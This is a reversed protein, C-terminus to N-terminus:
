PASGSSSYIIGDGGRSNEINGSGFGNNSAKTSQISSVASKRWKAIGEDIRKIYEFVFTHDKVKIIKLETGVRLLIKLKGFMHLFSDIFYIRRERDRFADQLLATMEMAINMVVDGFFARDRKPFRFRMQYLRAILRSCDICLGTTEIRKYTTGPNKMNEICPTAM